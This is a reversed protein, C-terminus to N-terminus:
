NYMISVRHVSKPNELWAAYMEEVYNASEGNLFPEQALATGRRASSGAIGRKVCQLLWQRQATPHLRGARCAVGFIRQM